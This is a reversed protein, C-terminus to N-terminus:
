GLGIEGALHRAERTLAAGRPGRTLLWVPAEMAVRLPWLREGDRLDPLATTRPVAALWGQRRAIALATYTGNSIRATAGSRALRDAVQGADTSYTAVCVVVGSTRQAGSGLEAGAPQVMVLRDVGLRTRVVGRAPAAAPGLGIVCADLAGDAVATALVAGHNTVERVETEPLVGILAAFVAPALSAITGVSLRGADPARAASVAEDLLGLARRAPELFAEGAPTLRAGTTDREVLTAGLRRELVALRQSASPQSVHLQAAAAGIAGTEAIAAVLRCDGVGPTVEM